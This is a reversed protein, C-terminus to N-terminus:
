QGRGDEVGNGEPKWKMNWSTKNPNERHIEIGEWHLKGVPSHWRGNEKGATRETNLTWIMMAYHAKFIETFYLINM